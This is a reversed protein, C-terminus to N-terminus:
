ATACARAAGRDPGARGRDTAIEHMHYDADFVVRTGGAQLKPIVDLWGEQAPTQLVVIRYAGLDPEGETSGSRAGASSWGRRRRTSGAGTAASRPRRCCRATTAARTRRSPSSSSTRPSTWRSSPRSSPSRCARGSRACTPSARRRGACSSRTRAAGPVAVRPPDGPDGARLRVAFGAQFVRLDYDVDECGMRFAPDYIGVQELVEPRIYQFAGTVPCVTKVLAEPLNGPACRFRHEFM